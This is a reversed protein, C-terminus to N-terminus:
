NKEQLQKVYLEAHYAYNYLAQVGALQAEPASQQTLGNLYNALNYTYTEGEITLTMDGYFENVYLGEFIVIETGVTAQKTVGNAMRLTVTKGAADSSGKVAIAITGDLQFAISNLLGATNGSSAAVLTEAEYGAPAAVDALFTADNAMARVYEVMAYTLNHAEAYAESGLLAKAYAGVSVPIVHEYGNFTIIVAVTENAQNPAIASEVIFYNKGEAYETLTVVQDGIQVTAGSLAPAFLINLGIKSQLTLNMQMTNPRYAVLTAVANHESAEVTVPAFSYGFIGDIVANAHTATAGIEWYEQMGFGWNVLGVSEAPLLKARFTYDVGNVTLTVDDKAYAIFGGTQEIDSARDFYCDVYAVSTGEPVNPIVNYFYCGNFTAGNNQAGSAVLNSTQKAIFVCNNFTGKVGRVFSQSLSNVIFTSNRVVPVPGDDIGFFVTSTVGEPQIYTGGLIYGNNSWWRGSHVSKCLVTLNKGYETGNASAEGFYADAAGDTCAIGAAMSVDLIGGPVSSYIFSTAGTCIFAYNATNKVTWTYGNLDILFTAEYAIDKGDIKEKPHGIQYCSTGTSVEIDSYFCIYYEHNIKATLLSQLQEPATDGYYYTTEGFATYSFYLKEIEGGVSVIVTKGANEAALIDTIVTDGIKAIWVPNERYYWVGDVKIITLGTIDGSITHNAGVLWVETTDVVDNYVTVFGETTAYYACIKYYEGNVLISTYAAQMGEPAAGYVTALGEPDAAYTTGSYTVATIKSTVVAPKVGSFTCDTLNLTYKGSGSSGCAIATANVNAAIMTVNELNVRGSRWGDLYLVSTAAANKSILIADKITTNMSIQMVGSAHGGIYTGGYIQHRDTYSNNGYENEHSQIAMASGADITLNEGEFIIQTKKGEGVGFVHASSENLIKGGAVSSKLTFSNTANFGEFGFVVTGGYTPGAGTATLYCNAAKLSVLGTVGKDITVTKGNLDWIISGKALSNFYDRNYADTKRDEVVAGFPVGKKLRMNQYMTIEYGADPANFIEYFKDGVATEDSGCDTVFGVAYVVGTLLDRYSFACPENNEFAVPLTIEGASVVKGGAIETIGALDLYPDTYLIGDVVKIFDLSESEFATGVKYYETVTGEAAIKLTNATGVIEYLVDAEIASGDAAVLGEIPKADIRAAVLPAEETGINEATGYNALCGEKYTVSATGYTKAPIYNIFTCGNFIPTTARTSQILSSAVPTYFVCNSIENTGAAINAGNHENVDVFVPTGALMYFEANRVAYIRRSLNIFGGVSSNVATQYYKGGWINAGGGHIDTLICKGYFSINDAYPGDASSNGLSHTADDNTRFMSPAKEHHWEAGPVSSYIRISVSMTDMYTTQTTTVTHGNLDLFVPIGVYQRTSLMINMRFNNTTVDEYLIINIRATTKLGLVAEAAAGTNTGDGRDGKNLYSLYNAVDDTLHYVKTMSASSSLQEETVYYVKEFVSTDVEIANFSADYTYTATPTVAVFLEDGRMDEIPARTKTKAYGEVFAKAADETEAIYATTTGDLWTVTKFSAKLDTVNADGDLTVSGKTGTNEATVSYFKCNRFKPTSDAVSYLLASTGQSYFECNTIPSTGKSADSLDTDKNLDFLIAYGDLAYFKANVIEKMRRNINVFGAESSGAIQHYHGGRIYAGSGWTSGFISKAHFHINDAYNGNADAGLVVTTNDNVTVLVSGGVFLHAGPQSSYLYLKVGNLQNGSSTYSLTHGNLDFYLPRQSSAKKFGPLFNEGTTDSYVKITVSTIVGAGCLTDYATAGTHIGDGEDGKNSSTFYTGLDDTLHYVMATGTSLVERSTFYVKDAGKAVITKGAMEATVTLDTLATDTGRLYFSWGETADDKYLTNGAGFYLKAEGEATFERPTIAAGVAVVDTSGDPYVVTATATPEAVAEALTALAFVGVLLVLSLALLLLKKANKM